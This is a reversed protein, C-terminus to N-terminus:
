SVFSSKKFHLITVGVIKKGKKRILLDENLMEADDAAQPSGFSIYLVDAQKDYHMVLSEEKRMLPAIAPLANQLNHVLTKEM